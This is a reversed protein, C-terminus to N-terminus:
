ITPVHIISHLCSCVSVYLPALWVIPIPTTLCSLFTNPCVHYKFGAPNYHMLSEFLIGMITGIILFRYNKTKYGKSTYLEPTNVYSICLLTIGLLIPVITNSYEPKGFIGTLLYCFASLITQKIFHHFTIKRGGFYSIPNKINEVFIEHFIYLM